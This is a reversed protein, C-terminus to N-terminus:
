REMWIATIICLFHEYETPTGFLKKLCWLRRIYQAVVFLVKRLIMPRYFRNLSNMSNKLKNVPAVAHLVLDCIQTIRAMVQEAFVVISVASKPVVHSTEGCVNNCFYGIRLKYIWRPMARKPVVETKNTEELRKTHKRNLSINGM